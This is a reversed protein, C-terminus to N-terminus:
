AFRFNNPYGLLHKPMGLFIVGPLFGFVACELGAFGLGCGTVALYLMVWM